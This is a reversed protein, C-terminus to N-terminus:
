IERLEKKIVDMSNRIKKLAEIRRQDGTFSTNIYSSRSVHRRRHTDRNIEEAICNDMVSISFSLANDILERNLAM